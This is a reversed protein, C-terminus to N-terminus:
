EKAELILVGPLAPTEDEVIEVTVQQPKTSQRRVTVVFYRDMRKELFLDTDVHEIKRNLTALDIDLKDVQMANMISVLLLRVYPTTLLEAQFREADTPM